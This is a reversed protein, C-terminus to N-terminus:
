LNTSWKKPSKLIRILLNKIILSKLHFVKRDQAAPLILSPKISIIKKMAM